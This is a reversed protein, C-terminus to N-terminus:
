HQITFSDIQNGDKDIAVLTLQDSAGNITVKCFHYKVGNSTPTPAEHWASTSYAALPAGGRGSTIHKVGGTACRCYYHNHGCFVIDVDNSDFVPQLSSRVEQYASGHTSAGSYGPEHLVVFKWARDADKLDDKLWALQTAGVRNSGSYTGTAYQDLVAVHVPGYDFSWYSTNTAGVYPYPWYKNCLLTGYYSQSRDTGTSDKIEHNGLCGQIPVNALLEMANQESRPFFEDEWADESNGGRDVWDGAHLALTQFDSDGTYTSVMRACVDDYYASPNGNSAGRTDGYVLFKISTTTTVPATYFSGAGVGTVRYYYKTGPTLNPIPYKHQHGYTGSNYETTQTSSGYSTTTGWELTCTRQQKLQWLVTMQATTDPTGTEGPYILYPEKRVIPEFEYAGMDATATGNEDGDIPRSRGTADESPAGTNTGADICPSRVDIELGDDITLFRNDPGDPDGTSFFKPDSNINGTGGAGGEVDSYTVTAAGDPTGGQWLEEGNDWADDDWFICNQVTRLAGDRTALGGGDDQATNGYFTCNIWTVHTGSDNDAAGGGDGGGVGTRKRTLNSAIVCNIFNPDSAVYNYGEGKTNFIAGGHSGGDTLEDSETENSYFVCNTFIGNSGNKNCLAGGDDGAINDIFICNTVTPSANLCHMGGGDGDDSEAKNDKILCNAITPSCNVLDIGGGDALGVDSFGMTITFGDLVTTSTGSTCRVVHRSNQADLASDEDIDGSLITEHTIWNRQSRTTENGAFGGYVAAGAVLTFTSAEDATGNPHDADEDPKYTGEAVWIECGSSAVALADQLHKFAKVWTTGDDGPRDKDVFIINSLNFTVSDSLGCGDTVTVMATTGSTPATWTVESGTSPEFSGPGSWTLPPCGGSCELTVQAGYYVTDGDQHSTIVPSQGFATQVGMGLVITIALHIFLNESKNM